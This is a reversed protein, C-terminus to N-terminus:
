RALFQVIASRFEPKMVATLHGGPVRVRRAGPIAAALQANHNAPFDRSGTLILVPSTVHKLKTWDMQDRPARGLAELAEQDNGTRRAMRGAVWRRIPRPRTAREEGGGRPARLIWDGVGGLVVRELREPCRVLLSAAIAGGMSYGVLDCQEIALHDMLGVVDGAMKGNGYSAADHPKGSQGHGRCDLAVVRHGVATLAGIVGTRRWNQEISSSLGHVLMVPPGDGESVYHISVGGSEFFPM